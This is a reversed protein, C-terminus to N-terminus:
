ANLTTAQGSNKTKVITKRRQLLELQKRVSAPFFSVGAYILYRPNWAFRLANFFNFRAEGPHNFDLKDRGVIFYKEALEAKLAKDLAPFWRREVLMSYIYVLNEAKDHSRRNTEMAPHQRWRALRKPVYYVPKGSAALLCSIWYDYAGTVQPVVLAWDIAEKRFVTSINVSIGHGLVAFQALSVVIGEPLCSRGFTASYVNSEEHLIRGDEDMLWHDSCAAVLHSDAELPSMLESLFNQEWFDDDNLIAIFEGRAQQVAGVLSRTVGITAPNPLYRIRGADLNLVIERSAATGSDDAVVIEFDTYSQALVSELAEPLYKTRKYVTVIVSVRPTKM